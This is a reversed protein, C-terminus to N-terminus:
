EVEMEPLTVEIDGFSQFTLTVGYTALETQIDFLIHEIYTEGLMIQVNKISQLGEGLDIFSDLYDYANVKMVFSDELKTFWAYEFTYFFLPEGRDEVTMDYADGQKVYVHVEDALRHYIAEYSGDVYRTLDGAFYM